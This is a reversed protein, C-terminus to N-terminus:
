FTIRGDKGKKKEEILMERCFLHFKLDRSSHLIQCNTSRTLRKVFSIEDSRVAETCGLAAEESNRISLPLRPSAILHHIANM